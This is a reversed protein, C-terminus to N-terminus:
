VLPKWVEPVFGYGEGARVVRGFSPYDLHIGAVRLRETAAMDLIRRRAAAAAAADIDFAVCAHPLAFQVGPLHIIDGWILLSDGASEVLWATHGPTHGPTPFARVGPIAEGDRVATVRGEYAALATRALAFNGKQSDAARALEGDDRWFALENEHVFLEAEPFVARGGADTLGAEHDPHMHTILIADIDGPTVGVSALNPVLKGVLPTERIFGTDVLALSDGTRILFTNITLWPPATRFESRHAAECAALDAGVIDNFSIQFIGDNVVSVVADGVAVHSVSSPQSEPRAQATM